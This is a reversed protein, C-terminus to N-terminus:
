VVLEADGSPSRVKLITLDREAIMKVELECTM